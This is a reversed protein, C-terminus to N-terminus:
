KEKLKLTMLVEAELQLLFTLAVKRLEFVTRRQRDYFQLFYCHVETVALPRWIIVNLILLWFSVPILIYNQM